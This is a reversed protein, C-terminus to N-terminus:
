SDEHKGKVPPWPCIGRHVGKIGVTCGCAMCSDTHSYSDRRWGTEQETKAKARGASEEAEYDRYDAM